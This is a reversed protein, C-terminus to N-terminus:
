QRWSFSLSVFLRLKMTECKVRVLLKLIKKLIIFNRAVRSLIDPQMVIFKPRCSESIVIFKPRCSEPKPRCSKPRSSKRAVQGNSTFSLIHFNTSITCFMSQQCDRKKKLSLLPLARAHDNAHRPRKARRVLFFSPSSTTQCRLAVDLLFLGMYFGLTQRVGMIKSILKWQLGVGVVECM